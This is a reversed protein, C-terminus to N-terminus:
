VTPRQRGYRGGAGARCRRPRASVAILGAEPHKIGITARRFCSVPYEAWWEGFTRALTPWRRAPSARRQGPEAM